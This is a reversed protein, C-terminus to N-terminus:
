KRFINWRLNKDHNQIRRQSFAYFFTKVFMDVSEIKAHKVRKGLTTIVAASCLM